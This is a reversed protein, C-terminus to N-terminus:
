STPSRRRGVGIGIGLLVLGGVGVLAGIVVFIPKGSMVSGGLVNLGQLTWVSGAVVALVGLVLWLWRM